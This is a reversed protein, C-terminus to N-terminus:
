FCIDLDLGSGFFDCTHQLIDLGSGTCNMSVEALHFIFHVFHTSM